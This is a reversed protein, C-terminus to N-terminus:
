MEVRYLTVTPNWTGQRFYLYALNEQDWLTLSRMFSAAKGVEAIELPQSLTGSPLALDCRFLGDEDRDMYFLEVKNPLVRTIFSLDAAGLATAQDKKLASHFKFQLATDFGM